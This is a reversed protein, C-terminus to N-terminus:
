EPYYLIEGNKSLINHDILAQAQRGYHGQLIWAQGNKVLSSFLDVTGRIDLDGQEHAIIQDITNM